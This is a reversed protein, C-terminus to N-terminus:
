VVMLNYLIDNLKNFDVQLHYIVNNQSLVIENYANSVLHKMVRTKDYVHLSYCFFVVFSHSPSIILKYTISFTRM